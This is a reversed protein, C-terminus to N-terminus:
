PIPIVAPGNLLFGYIMPVAIMVAALLIILLLEIYLRHLARYKAQVGEGLSYAMAALENNLQGAHVSEWARQYHEVSHILFSDWFILGVPRGKADQGARGGVPLRPPRPRLSNYADILFIVATVGFPFILFPFWSRIPPPIMAAYHDSRTSLIFVGANVVGMVVLAYRAKHDALEVLRRGQGVTQWLNRCEERPSLPENRERLRKHLKKGHGRSSGNETGVAGAPESELRPM